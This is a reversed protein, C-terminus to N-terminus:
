LEWHCFTNNGRGNENGQWDAVRTFKVRCPKGWSEKRSRMKDTGKEKQEESPLAWILDKNEPFCFETKRVNSLIKSM